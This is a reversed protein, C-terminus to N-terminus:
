CNLPPGSPPGKRVTKSLAFKTYDEIVLQWRSTGFDRPRVPLARAM